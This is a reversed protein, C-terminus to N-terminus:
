TEGEEGETEQKTEVWRAFLPILFGAFVLPLGVWMLSRNIPEAASSLYILLAGFLVVIAGIGMQWVREKIWQM